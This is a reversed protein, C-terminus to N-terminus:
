FYTHFELNIRSQKKKCGISSENFADILFKLKTHDIVVANEPLPELPTNNAATNAGKKDGQKPKDQQKSKDDKMQEAKFYNKM